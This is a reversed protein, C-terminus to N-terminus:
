PLCILRSRIRELTKTGIGDVRLLEDLSTYTGYDERYSIIRESLVQGIGDIRTLTEADVRNINLLLVGNQVVAMDDLDSAVPSHAVTVTTYDGRLAQGTLLIAIMLLATLSLIWIDRM